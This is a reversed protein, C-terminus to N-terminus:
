RLRAVQVDAKNLFAATTGSTGAVPTPGAAQMLLLLVNILVYTIGNIIITM